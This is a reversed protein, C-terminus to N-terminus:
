AHSIDEFIVVNTKRRDQLEQDRRIVIPILQQKRRILEVQEDIPLLENAGDAFLKGNIVKLRVGSATVLDAVQRDTYYSLDAM